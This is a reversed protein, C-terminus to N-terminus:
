AVMVGTEHQFLAGTFRWGTIVPYRLGLPLVDNLTEMGLKLWMKKNLFLCQQWRWFIDALCSQDLSRHMLVRM